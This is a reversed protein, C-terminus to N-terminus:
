PEGMFVFAGWYRPNDHGYRQKVIEKEKLIAQRLVQCRNMTGSKINRYFQVMLEKTERDPVKWLSMVLSKAGAQTFARRLGFVGEGSKVEGLGTDCASLVVMDTGHLNMGLIEEATVIGDYHGNSGKTLSHKAGALLIGSRLLPNEIDVKGNIKSGTHVAVTPLAAMQFGRGTGPVDQDSLFFGHTALHIISPHDANLLTEELADKGTYIITREPGLINGIADLESKAYPLPIFSLKGLDASRKSLMAMQDTPKKLEPIEFDPAGMLLYKGDMSQDDTFRLLDRGASLYNFTYEEILFSGDPNQLVEFPILNLHGDPSIYINKASGLHDTLPYFVREYIARSTALAAEFNNNDSESLEKKYKVILNDIQNADGLDILDVEDNAGSRLIFAIYYAGPQDNLKYIPTDIRAFELLASGQPLANAVKECDVETVKRNFSVSRKLRSLASELQEKRKELSYKKEKYYETDRATYGTFILKSLGIRVEILEQLLEDTQSNNNYISIEMYIKQADLISGKRNLWVEFSRKRKLSNNSFQHIILDFFYNLSWKNSTLFSVKQRESTFGIVDYILRNHIDLSKQIYSLAMIFDNNESCITAMHGYANSVSNNNLGITNLWIDIAEKYLNEAEDYSKMKRKVAAINSLVVAQLEIVNGYQNGKLIDLAQQFNNTADSLKGICVYLTGLNNLIRPILLDNRGINLKQIKLARLLLKEALEFEGDNQYQSALNVLIPSLNIHNEGLIKHFISLSKNYFEKANNYDGINSYFRGINNSIEAFRLSDNGYNDKIINIAEFYLNEAREYEGIDDYVGALNNLVESYEFAFKKPYIKYNLYYIRESEQYFKIAKNYRGNKYDVYAVNSLLYAVNQHNNGFKERFVILSEKLNKEYEDYDIKYENVKIISNQIKAIILEDNLPSIKSIELAKEYYKNAIIYDGSFQFIKGLAYNPMILEPNYYGLIRECIGISKILSEKAEELKWQDVYLTVLHNIKNAIDIRDEKYYRESIDISRILYDTAKKINSSKRYISSLNELVVCLYPHDFGLKSERIALAKEFMSMATNYQELGCYPLALNNLSLGVDPHDSGLFKKRIALARKNTAISEEYEKRAYQLRGLYNLSDAIFPHENGFMDECIALVRQICPEAKEYKGNDIYLWAISNLTKVMDPRNIRHSKEQIDLSTQLLSEAEDPNDLDVQLRALNVLTEAVDPHNPGYAKERISLAKRLHRGSEDSRGMM